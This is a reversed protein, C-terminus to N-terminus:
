CIYCLLILCRPMKTIDHLFHRFLMAVIHPYKLLSIPLVLFETNMRTAFIFCSEDVLICTVILYIYNEVSPFIYVIINCFYQSLPQTSLVTMWVLNPFPILFALGLRLFSWCSLVRTVRVKNNLIIQSSSCPLSECNTEFSKISIVFVIVARILLVSLRFLNLELPFLFSIPQHFPYFHHFVKVM